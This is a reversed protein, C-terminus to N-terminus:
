AETAVKARDQLDTLSPAATIKATSKADVVTNYRDNAEDIAIRDCLDEFDEKREVLYTVADPKTMEVPLDLFTINDFGDKILIIERHPNRTFRVRTIDNRTTVGIRTFLQETM